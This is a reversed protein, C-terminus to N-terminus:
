RNVRLQLAWKDLKDDDDATRSAGGLAVAPVKIAGDIGLWYEGNQYAIIPLPQGVAYAYGLTRHPSWRCGDIECPGVLEIRCAPCDIEMVTQGGARHRLKGGKFYGPGGSVAIRQDGCTECPACAQVFEVPVQHILRRSGDSANGCPNACRIDDHVDYRRTGLPDHSSPRLIYHRRDDCIPAERVLWLTGGPQVSAWEAAALTLQRTM